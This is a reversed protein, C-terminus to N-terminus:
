SEALLREYVAVTKSAVVDWSHREHAFGCIDPRRNELDRYLESKFYAEITNALDTRDAPNCMLGTRGAIIEEKFAGVDAAILPLGFSFALFMVGSQFIDKYPLVLVDAAKFYIEVDGDPIFEIKSLIRGGPDIRAIMERIENSYDESGKKAEGAIILRYKSERSLLEDYAALLNDLGKYPRLRGFFLIAKEDAAIGLRRKADGATLESHPVANNIGFPIVTIKREPVGFDELLESKMKETHVFINDCLRYQVRLTRRNLASDKGDRRAQNVNHATLVVKKGQLKYYHMLLTRDFFEFKPNWLIHLLRPQSQAAYRLLRGYYRFLEFLKKAPNVKRRRSERVSVFRLNPTAHMEPADV